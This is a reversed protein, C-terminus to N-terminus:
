AWHVSAAMLAHVEVHLYQVSASASGRVHCTGFCASGDSARSRASRTASVRPSTFAACSHAKRLGFGLGINLAVYSAAQSRYTHQDAETGPHTSPQGSHTRSRAGSDPRVELM